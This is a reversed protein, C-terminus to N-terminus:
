ITEVKRGSNWHISENISQAKREWEVVSKGNFTGGYGRALEASGKAETLLRILTTNVREYSDLHTVGAEALTDMVEPEPTQLFMPVEIEAPEATHPNARLAEKIAEYDDAPPTEARKRYFGPARDRNPTFPEQSDHLTIKTM